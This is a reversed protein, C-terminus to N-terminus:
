DLIRNVHGMKRGPRPDSKGYFHLHLGPEKALAEGAEIEKGLLNRMEVKHKPIVDGLPWGAIARIHLEFQDVCGANQTWHGSNHVRPAIENVLLTGDELEFFEVALVGVYKLADLLTFAIKEAKGNDGEAPAVSRYLVHNRHENEVLPYAVADGHINRAAIISVERKFPIFDELIAPQHNIADFAQKPSIGDKLIIQGKGDYGMRRTKLVAPLDLSKLTRKLDFENEVARFETVSIGADRIFSKEVLRDQAVELCNIGPRVAAETKATKAAPVPVNEFEYTVVACNKSFELLADTDDYNACTHRDAVHAAPCDESPDFIHVKFGLRSAACSLMRGLQGGGLIGITQGPRLTKAM